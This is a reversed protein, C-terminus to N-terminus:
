AFGVSVHDVHELVDWNILINVHDETTSVRKGRVHVRVALVKGRWRWRRCSLDYGSYGEDVALRQQDFTIGKVVGGLLKVVYGCVGTTPRHDSSKWSAAATGIVPRLRPHQLWLQHAHWDHLSRSSKAEGNCVTRQPLLHFHDQILLPALAQQFSVHYFLNVPLVHLRQAMYLHHIYQLFEWHAALHIQQNQSSTLSCSHTHFMASIM